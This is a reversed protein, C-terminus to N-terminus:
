MTLAIQAGTLRMKVNNFAVAWVVFSFIFYSSHQNINLTWVLQYLSKLVSCIETRPLEIQSRFSLFEIFNDGIM